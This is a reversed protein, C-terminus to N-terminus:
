NAKMIVDVYGCTYLNKDTLVISHYGGAIVKKIKENQLAINM